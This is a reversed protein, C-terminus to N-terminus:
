VGLEMALAKFEEDEALENILDCENYFRGEFGNRSRADSCKRSCNVQAGCKPMFEAGCNKCNKKEFVYNSM